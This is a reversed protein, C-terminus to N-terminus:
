PSLKINPVIELISIINISSEYYSFKTIAGDVGLSILMSIKELFVVDLIGFNVNISFLKIGGINWFYM